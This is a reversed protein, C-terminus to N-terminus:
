AAGACVASWLGRCCGRAKRAPSRRRDAGISQANERLCRLNAEYQEWSIYAPHADKCLMWQERSLRKYSTSGDPNTRTRSRGYVFAGAYRPNHLLHLTRSHPLEAWVLDGKNPGRKLRRPFLLGRRRFEKVVACAPGTRRFTDFFFRITEQVQKDPDLVPESNANYIFGTPM